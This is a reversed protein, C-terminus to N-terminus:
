RLTVDEQDIRNLLITPDRLHLSPLEMSPLGVTARLKNMQGWILWLEPLAEDWEENNRRGAVLTALEAKLQLTDLELWEPTV